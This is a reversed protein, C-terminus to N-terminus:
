RWHSTRKGPGSNREVGAIVVLAEGSDVQVDGPPYALAVFM